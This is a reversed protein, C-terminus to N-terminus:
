LLGVDDGFGNVLNIVGEPILDQILEMMVMVRVPTQEAPKMVLCNGTCTCTGM